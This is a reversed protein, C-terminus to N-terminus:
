WYSGAPVSNEFTDIFWRKTEGNQTWVILYGCQDACDPCGIREATESLLQTPLADSLQKAILRKDDSLPTTQFLLPTSPNGITTNDAFLQNNELKYVKACDGRCFGCFRGFTFTEPSAIDKKCASFMILASSLILIGKKM